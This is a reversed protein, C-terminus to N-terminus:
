YLKDPTEGKSNNQAVFKLDPEHLISNNFMEALPLVIPRIFEKMFCGSSDIRKQDMNKTTPQNGVGNGMTYSSIFYHEPIDKGEEYYEVLSQAMDIYATFQEQPRGIRLAIGVRGKNDEKCNNVRDPHYERLLKAIDTQQYEELDALHGADTLCRDAFRKRQNRQTDPFHESLYAVITKVDPKVGKKGKTTDFWVMQKKITVLVDEDTGDKKKDTM